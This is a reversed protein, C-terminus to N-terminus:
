IIEKQIQYDDQNKQIQYVKDIYKEMNDVFDCWKVCLMYNCDGYYITSENDCSKLDPNKQNFMNEKMISFISNSNTEYYTCGLNCCTKNYTFYNYSGSKDPLIIALLANTKSTVSNGNKDKRSIEKLSYSIELPIWQNKEETYKERMGKSLMIITLTSDYIRNKLKEWITSDTLQSLDEGDSEGKYIHDTKDKLTEEIIDVYNRVTCNWWLGPDNTVNQVDNDAYKYSIFIKRGM